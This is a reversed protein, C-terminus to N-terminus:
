DCLETNRAAIADELEYTQAPHKIPDPNVALDIALTPRSGTDCTAATPWLNGNWATPVPLSNDNDPWGAAPATIYDLVLTATSGGCDNEVTDRYLQYRTTSGAVPKTCWQVGAAVQAVTPCIGGTSPITLTFGGLDNQQPANLFNACHVDVRMRDLAVRANQQAEQRQSVAVESSMGSVMATTLGLLVVNLIVMVVILEVLTFGHDGRLRQGIQARM